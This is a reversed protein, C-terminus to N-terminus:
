EDGTSAIRERDDEEKRREGCFEIGDNAGESRFEIGSQTDNNSRWRKWFGIGGQSANEGRLDSIEGSFGHFEIGSQTDNNERLEESDAVELFSEIKEVSGANM